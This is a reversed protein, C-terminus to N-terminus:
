SGCTAEICMAIKKEEESMPVESAIYRTRSTGMRGKPRINVRVVLGHKMLEQIASRTGAFGDPCQTTMKQISSKWDDPKCLMKVWLGLAKHSLYTKDLVVNSVLTYQNEDEPGNTFVTTKKTETM